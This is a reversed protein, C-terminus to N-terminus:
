LRWLFGGWAKAGVAFLGMSAYGVALMGFAAGGVAVGGVAIAGLAIAGIPLVGIAVAGFAVVGIATQGYAVVGRAKTGIAIVGAADHGVALIGRARRIPQGTLLDCATAIDVFPLGGLRRQSTFSVDAGRQLLRCFRLGRRFASQRRAQIPEGRLYRQLEEALEGASGVRKGPEKELCKLCLTELDRDIAASHVCPSVPDQELVMQLTRLPTAAAFPAHGSLAAYLVAGLAYVDTAPGVAAQRGSAQEPSMFSPTGLTQGTGTLQSTGDLRKALGFDTIRPESEASDPADRDRNPLLINGPKLDRHIVGQQHAYAV